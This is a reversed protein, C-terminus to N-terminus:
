SLRSQRYAPWNSGTVEQVCLIIVVGKSPSTKGGPKFALIIIFHTKSVPHVPIIHRVASDPPLLSLSLSLPPPPSCIARNSISCISFPEETPRIFCYVWNCYRSVHWVCVCVCLIRTQIVQWCDSVKRAGCANSAHWHCSKSLKSKHHSTM